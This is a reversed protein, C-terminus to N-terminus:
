TAKPLLAGVIRIGLIPGDPYTGPYSLVKLGGSVHTGDPVASGPVRRSGGTRTSGRWVCSRTRSGLPREHGRVGPRGRNGLLAAAPGAKCVAVAGASPYGQGAGYVSKQNTKSDM